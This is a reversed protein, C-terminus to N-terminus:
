HCEKSKAAKSSSILPDTSSTGIVSQIMVTLDSGRGSGENRTGVRKGALLKLQAGRTKSATAAHLDEIRGKGERGVLSPVM